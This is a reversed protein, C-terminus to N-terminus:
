KGYHIPRSCNRSPYRPEPAPLPPPSPAPPISGPLALVPPAGVMDDPLKLDRGFIHQDQLTSWQSNEPSAPSSDQPSTTHDPDIFRTGPTCLKLRNFHVIRTTKGRLSKVKYDSTSLVQVVLHPGTWPHHHKRSDGRPVVPNHMWVLDGIKFPDGHVHKDNYKKQHEHSANLKERVLAYADELGEKLQLAYENVPTDANGTRYVLDIPLQAQRGFMLFFPTHGTSAQVSTNYAFCVKHLRDEWEFPNNTTTTALM